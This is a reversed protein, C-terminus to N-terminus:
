AAKLELKADALIIGVLKEFSIGNKEALEPVISLDTFGPHTNIELFYLGGNEPNYRMDSRSVSRCGLMKHAIEAFKLSEKYVDEPLNAPYIHETKGDTYKSEYDYFGSLPKLELSGIAKDLIVATSIEQGHIYEEVLAEEGYSWPNTAQQEAFAPDGDKIIYVGVTSGQSIPKIVYPRKMPELGSLLDAVKVKKGEPFRIGYNELLIRTLWKNMGVASAEVGSHTYPIGLVELLGPIAGDEGYTGHLSNYIVDPKIKVLSEPLSTSPDVEFVEHGLRRLAAVVSKGSNLSVERESSKGGMLVAVRKIM